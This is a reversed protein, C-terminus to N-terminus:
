KPSPAGPLEVRQVPADTERQLGIQAWGLNLGIRTAEPNAWAYALTAGNGDDILSLKLVPVNGDRYTLRELGLSYGAPRGDRWKLAIRGGESGLRISRDMHWDTSGAAATPGAGNLAAWGSFYTVKRMDERATDGRAQDAYLRVRLWEGEEEVAIPLLSAQAGVGPALLTCANVDTALRIGGAMAGGRLACDGLPAWERRDFAKGVAPSANLARHPILAVGNGTDVRRMAWQAQLMPTVDLYVHWMSWDEQPTPEIRVVLHPPAPLSSARASWVQENNDYEGSLSSRAQANAAPRIAATNAMNQCATLALLLPLSLVFRNM